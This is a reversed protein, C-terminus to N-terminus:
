NGTCDSQMPLVIGKTFNRSSLLLHTLLLELLLQAIDMHVVQIYLLNM